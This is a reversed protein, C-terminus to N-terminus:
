LANTDHTVKIPLYPSLHLYIGTLLQATQYTLLKKITLTDLKITIDRDQNRFLWLTINLNKMYQILNRHILLIDFVWHTQSYFSPAMKTSLEM